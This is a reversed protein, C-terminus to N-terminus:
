DVCYLNYLDPSIEGSYGYEEYSDDEISDVSIDDLPFIFEPSNIYHQKLSKRLVYKLLTNQDSPKKKPSFVTLSSNIGLNRYFEERSCSKITEKKNEMKLRVPFERININKESYKIGKPM